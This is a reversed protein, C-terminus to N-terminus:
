FDTGSLNLGQEGFQCLIKTTTANCDNWYLASMQDINNNSSRSISNLCLQAATSNVTIITNNTDAMITVNSVNNMWQAAGGGASQGGGWLVSVNPAQMQKTFQLNSVAISVESKFAVLKRYCRLSFSSIKVTMRSM